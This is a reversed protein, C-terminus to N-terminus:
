SVAYEYSWDSAKNADIAQKMSSSFPSHDVNQAVGKEFVIGFWQKSESEGTGNWTVMLHPSPKAPAPPSAQAVEEDEEWEGEEDDQEDVADVDSSSRRTVTRKRKKAM